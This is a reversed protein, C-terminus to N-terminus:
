HQGFGLKYPHVATAVAGMQFLGLGQSVTHKVESPGGLSLIHWVTVLKDKGFLTQLKTMSYPTFAVELSFM